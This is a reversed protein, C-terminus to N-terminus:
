NVRHEIERWANKRQGAQARFGRQELGHADAHGIKNESEDPEPQNIAKAAARQKVDAGEAVDKREPQGGPSKEASMKGNDRRANKRKDGRVGDSLAGHDPHEDGLNKWGAM